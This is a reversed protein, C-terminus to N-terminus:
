SEDGPPDTERERDARKPEPVPTKLARRYAALLGGVFSGIAVAGGVAGMPDAVVIALANGVKDYAHEPIIALGLVLLLGLGLILVIHQWRDSM